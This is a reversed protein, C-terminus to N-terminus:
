SVRRRLALGALLLGSGLLASTTPEPVATFTVELKANHYFFDGATRALVFNLTGDLLSLLPVSYAHGTQWTPTSGGTVQFDAFSIAAGELSTIDARENADFRGQDDSLYLTLIASSVSTWLSPDYTIDLMQTRNFFNLETSVNSTEAFYTITDASAAGASALSATLILAGLSKKMASVEHKM